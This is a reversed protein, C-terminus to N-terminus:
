LWINGQLTGQDLVRVKEKLSHYVNKLFYDKTELAAWTCMVTSCGAQYAFQLENLGLASGELIIMSEIAAMPKVNKTTRKVNPKSITNKSKKM